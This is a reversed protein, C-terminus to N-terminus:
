RLSAIYAALAEIDEDSLSQTVQEMRANTRSIKRQPTANNANSRFRKLTNVVYDHQQGALRAYGEEGKGNHGHCMQCVRQFIPEGQKALIPDFETEKVEQNSYYIALNLKDEHTFDSALTQMVFNKREGDAFKGIQEFLYAPNQGALNPIDKRVSNGDVGHCNGCLVSRELGKEMAAKRKAPAANIEAAEAMLAEREALDQAYSQQVPVLVVTGLFLSTIATKIKKM